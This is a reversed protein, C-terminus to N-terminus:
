SSAPREILGLVQPGILAGAVLYGLTAGLGLRRFLTVFVLAAGLMIAGSELVRHDGARDRRRTTVAAAEIAALLARFPLLIAGHRAQAARAPALAALGPWDGADDQEGGLWAASRTAAGRGARRASRGIAHRRDAGGLGPRARLREGAAGLAAVRGEGDLEVSSTSGAAASRRACSPARRGRPRARAARALSAALRLIDPTYLPANM